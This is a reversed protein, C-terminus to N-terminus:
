ENEVVENMISDVKNTFKEIKGANDEKNNKMFYEKNEIIKNCIDDLISLDERQRLKYAILVYLIFMYYSLFMTNKNLEDLSNYHLNDKICEILNDLILAMQKMVSQCKSVNNFPLDLSEITERLITKTTFGGFHKLENKTVRVNDKLIESKTILTEIIMSSKDDKLDDLWEKNTDSRKFLQQVFRKGDNIDMSVLLVNLKLTLDKGTQQRYRRNAKSCAIIRHAGDLIDVITTKNDILDYNPIIEVNYLNEFLNTPYIQTNNHENNIVRLNLIITDPKYDGDLISQEIEAVKQYNINWERVKILDTTGITVYKAERQTNYNYFIKQNDLWEAIEAVSAYGLYTSHGQKLFHTLKISNDNLEENIFSEYILLDEQKFINTPNCEELSPYCIHVGYMFAIYEMLRLDSDPNIFEKLQRGEQLVLYAVSTNLKHKVYEKTIEDILKENNYESNTIIKQLIVLQEEKTALRQLVRM